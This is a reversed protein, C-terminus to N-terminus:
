TENESSAGAVIQEVLQQAAKEVEPALGIGATFNKAEIGYVVLHPPLEGLTRALEIAAALSFAHTSCHFFSRPLEDSHAEFRHITGPAADSNVADIIVVSAAGRWAEILSTGEGSQEIVEACDRLRQELQRAVVLGVADDRRYENGIGVVLLKEKTGHWSM